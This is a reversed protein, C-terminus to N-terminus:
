EYRLAEVPNLTSARRAPVAAAALAALVVLAACVAITLADLARVGFLQSEVLRGLVGVVPLAIAVGAVVLAGTDRLVLWLAAERTAGLAMRIGIERTRRTVVFSTVGYLGVVALIVALAAFGSALIALLRENGLARDLQDDLTRLREVPLAPDLTRVAGRIAAFAAPSSARTRVYYNTGGITSELFPVFVQDDVERLGRYSFTKV